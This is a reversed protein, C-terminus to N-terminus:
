KWCKVRNKKIKFLKWFSAEPELERLLLSNIERWYDQGEKTAKWEFFGCEARGWDHMPNYRGEKRRRIRSLKTLIQKTKVLGFIPKLRKATLKPRFLRLQRLLSSWERGPPTGIRSLEGRKIAKAIEPPFNSPKSFNECERQVGVSDSLGFIHRIAGHGTKDRGDLSKGKKTDLDGNTLFLCYTKGKVDKEIWSVFECM